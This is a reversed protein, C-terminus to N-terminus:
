EVYNGLLVAFIASNRVDRRAKVAEMEDRDKRVRGSDVEGTREASVGNLLPGAGGLSGLSSCSIKSSSWRFDVPANLVGCTLWDGAESASACDWGSLGAPM